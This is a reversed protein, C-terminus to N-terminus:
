QTDKVSEVRQDLDVSHAQAEEETLTVSNLTPSGPDGGERQYDEIHSGYEVNLSTLTVLLFNKAVRARVKDQPNLEGPKQMVAM